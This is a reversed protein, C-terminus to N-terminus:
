GKDITVKARAMGTADELSEQLVSRATEAESAAVLVSDHLPLATIGNEFLRLCAIILGMSEALMLQFGLGTHFLSAIPAHKKEVAATLDKIRWGDPFADATGKPFGRLPAQAFLMANVLRKFGNRHSGDGFVDYLDGDPPQLHLTNYALRPFLQGFDVNAIPEGEPMAKSGIRLHRFRLERPMTEWFGDYLRGGALWSGNNFIRRVRRKTPDIPLGDQDKLPRGDPTVLFLQAAVLYRNLRQVERRLARTKQTDTYPISPAFDGGDKEGKLIVAEPPELRQFSSWDLNDTDLRVAFAPLPRILTAESREGVKFGKQLEEILAVESRAMLDLAQVFGEGYCAHKYRGSGRMLNNDRPVALPEEPAAYLLMAINSAITAIAEHFAKRDADRRARKRLGLAAEQQELEAILNVVVASLAESSPRLTPDFRIHKRQENVGRFRRPPKSTGDQASAEEAETDTLRVARETM